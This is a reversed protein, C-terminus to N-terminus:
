WRPRIEKRLLGEEAEEGRGSIGKLDLYLQIPSVTRLGYRDESSYYV